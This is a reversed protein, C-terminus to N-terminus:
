VVDDRRPVSSARGLPQSLAARRRGSVRASCYPPGEVVDVAFLGCCCQWRPCCAPHLALDVVHQLATDRAVAALRQGLVELDGALGLRSCARVTSMAHRMEGGSSTSGPSPGPWNRRWSMAVNAPPMVGGACGSTGPSSSRHQPADLREPCVVASREDLAHGGAVRPELLDVREEEQCGSNAASLGPHRSHLASRIGHLGKKHRQMPHSYRRQALRRVQGFGEQRHASGRASDRISM